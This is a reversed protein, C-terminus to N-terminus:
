FPNVASSLNEENFDKLVFFLFPFKFFNECLQLKRLKFFYKKPQQKGSLTRIGDHCYNRLRNRRSQTQARLVEPLEVGGLDRIRGVHLRVPVAPIQFYIKKLHKRNFSLFSPNKPLELGNNRLGFLLASRFFINLIKEKYQLLGM